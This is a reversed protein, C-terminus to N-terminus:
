PEDHICRVRKTSLAVIKEREIDAHWSYAVDEREGNRKPRRGERVLAVLTADRKGDVTCPGGTNQLTGQGGPSGDRAYAPIVVADVIRWRTTNGIRGLSKQLTLVPKDECYLNGYFWGDLAKTDPDLAGGGVDTCSPQLTQIDDGIYERGILAKAQQEVTLPVRDQAALQTAAIALVFSVCKKLQHM